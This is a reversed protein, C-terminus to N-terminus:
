LFLLGASVITMVYVIVRYHAESVKKVILIGLFAGVLIIPIMTIGFLLGELRINHWAFHQLPIKLYNVIM